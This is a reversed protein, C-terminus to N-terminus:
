GNVIEWHGGKDPGIRKKRKFTAIFKTGVESFKTDPEKSSLGSAEGWKEIFHVRHLMEAILENRRESVM